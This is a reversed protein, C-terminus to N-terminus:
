RASSDQVPLNVYFSPRFIFGSTGEGESVQNQTRHLHPLIKRASTLSFEVELFAVLQSDERNLRDTSVRRRNPQNLITNM